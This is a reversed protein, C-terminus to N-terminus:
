SSARVCTPSVAVTTLPLCEPRGSRRARYQADRTPRIPGEPDRSARRDPPHGAEPSRPDRRAHRAPSRQSRRSARRRRRPHRGPRERDAEARTPSEDTAAITIFPSTPDATVKLRTALETADYPLDAQSIVQLLVPRTIALTAYTQAIRPATLVDGNGSADMGLGAIVVLQAEATYTRKSTNSIVFTLGASITVAIAIFLLYGLINRNPQSSRMVTAPGPEYTVGTTAMPPSYIPPYSSSRSSRPDYTVPRGKPLPVGRRVADRGRHWPSSRDGHIHRCGVVDSRAALPFPDPAPRDQAPPDSPRHGRLSEATRPRRRVQPDRLRRRPSRRFTQWVTEAVLRHDQHADDAHPAVVLDIQRSKVSELLDKMAAMAAPLRGDPLNGLIVDHSAAASSFAAASARAERARSADASAVIWSVTSGPREALLRLITAGAGIEVDDAHAGVALIHLPGPDVFTLRRM